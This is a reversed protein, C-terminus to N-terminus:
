RVRVESCVRPQSLVRHQSIEPIVRVEQLLQASELQRRLCLDLRLLLNQRGHYRRPRPCWTYLQTLTINLPISFSVRTFILVSSHAFYQFSEFEM